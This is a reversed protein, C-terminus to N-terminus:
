KIQNKINELMKNAQNEIQRMHQAVYLNNLFIVIEMSTYNQPPILLTIIGDHDTKFLNVFLHSGKFNSRDYSKCIKNYLDFEDDSMELKTNNIIRVSM